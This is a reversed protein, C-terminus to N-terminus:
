INKKHTTKENNFEPREISLNAKASPRIIAKDALRLDIISLDRKFIQENRGLQALQSLALGIDKEPLKVIAKTTLTLDWRRDGIRTIAETQDAIEKEAYLLPLIDAAHKNATAGILLPLHSFRGINQDTLVIGDIDIAVLKKNHQWLASPEREVIKILLTDPLRREIHASKIWSIQELTKQADIPTFTFIPDNAKINLLSILTEKSVRKRGTVQVDKIVFGYSVSKDVFGNWVDEKVQTYVGTTFFWTGTILITFFICLPILRYRIFSQWFPNQRKRPQYSRKVTKRKKTKRVM